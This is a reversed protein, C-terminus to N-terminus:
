AASQVLAIVGREDERRIRGGMRKLASYIDGYYTPNKQDDFFEISGEAKEVANKQWFIAAANDTSKAPYYNIDDDFPEYCVPLTANSYISVLSREILTFTELKVIRGEVGDYLISFDKYNTASVESIIQDMMDTDILGFRDTRLVQQKNMKKKVARLDSLTVAKRTGSTGDLHSSVAVGTTRVINPALSASWLYAFWDGVLQSMFDMQEGMVSEIKDYSLEVMEANTILMPDLTFEDLVYSVDKDKRKKVTAPLQKRNKKAGVGAGSQPIHVVKGALVYQDGNFSNKIFEAQRYINKEIYDQWIEPTIAMRLSYSSIPLHAATVFILGGVMANIGAAFFLNGGIIFALLSLLLIKFAKM